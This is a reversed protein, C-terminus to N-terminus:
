YIDLFQRNGPFGNLWKKVLFYHVKFHYSKKLINKNGRKYEEDIEYCSYVLAFTNYDTALVWYPATISESLCKFM